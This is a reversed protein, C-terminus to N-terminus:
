GPLVPRWPETHRYWAWRKIERPHAIGDRVPTAGTTGIQIARGTTGTVGRGARVHVGEPGADVVLGDGTLVVGVELRVWRAALGRWGRSTRAPVM